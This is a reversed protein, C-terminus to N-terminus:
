RKKADNLWDESRKIEESMNRIDRAFNENEIRRDLATWKNRVKDNAKTAAERQVLIDERM